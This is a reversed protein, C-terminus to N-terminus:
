RAARLRWKRGLNGHEGVIARLTMPTTLIITDGDHWERRLVAHVPLYRLRDLHGNVTLAATKSWSPVRMKLSFMSSQELRLKM